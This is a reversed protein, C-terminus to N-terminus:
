PLRTGTANTGAGWQQGGANAYMAREVVIPENATLKVGFSEDALEPVLSGPGTSVTFRTSPAVTFTKDFSPKGERLFTLTVISTNIAPNPLCFTPRVSASVVPLRM